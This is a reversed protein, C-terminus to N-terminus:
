TVSKTRYSYHEAAQTFVAFEFVDPALQHLRAETQSSNLDSLKM